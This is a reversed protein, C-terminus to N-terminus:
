EFQLSVLLIAATEAATLGKQVLKLNVETFSYYQVPGALVRPVLLKSIGVFGLRGSSYFLILNWCQEGSPTSSANAPLLAPSWVHSSLVEACPLSSLEGLGM